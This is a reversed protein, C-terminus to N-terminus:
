EDAALAVHLRFFVRAGGALAPGALVRVSEREPDLPTASAEVTWILTTDDGNFNWTTLDTSVEVRYTLESGLRRTFRVAAGDTTLIPVSGARRPHTALAYELLNPAGDLDADDPPGAQPTTVSFFRTRWDAYTSSNLDLALDWPESIATPTSLNEFETGDLNGRAIRRASTDFPGSGRGGTDAWYLKGAEVDLALGHPANLGSFVVEDSGGTLARRFLTGTQRDCWYATATTPDVVLDRTRTATTILFTPDIGGAFTARRFSSPGSGSSPVGWYLYGAQPDLFLFYPASTAGPATTVAPEVASGDLNARVIFGHGSTGTNAEAWYLKGAAEDIELDAELVTPNIAVVAQEGTGDPLISFIRNASGNDLVFVRGSPRHWAVGRLDPSSAVTVISTQGTGDLAISVVSGAAGAPQDTYYVRAAHALHSTIALNTLLCLILGRRLSLPSRRVFGPGDFDAPGPPNTNM